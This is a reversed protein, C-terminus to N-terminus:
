FKMKVYPGVTTSIRKQDSHDYQFRVPQMDLSVGFSIKGGKNGIHRSLGLDITGFVGNKIGLPQAPDTLIHEYEPPIIGYQLGETYNAWRYNFSANPFIAYGVRAGIYPTWKREPLFDYRFYVFPRFAHYQTTTIYLNADYSPLDTREAYNVYNIGLGASFHPNFKYGGFLDFGYSNPQNKGLSLGFSAGAGLEYKREEQAYASQLLSLTAVCLILFRKM